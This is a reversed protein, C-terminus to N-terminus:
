WRAPLPRLLKLLGGQPRVYAGHELDKMVRSVMERTCGIRNAIDQHTLREAV